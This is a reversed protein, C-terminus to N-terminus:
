HGDGFAKADIAAFNPSFSWAVPMMMTEDHSLSGAATIIQDCFAAPIARRLRTGDYNRARVDGIANECGAIDAAPVIRFGYLQKGRIHARSSSNTSNGM